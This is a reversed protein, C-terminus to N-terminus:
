IFQSVYSGRSKKLFDPIQYKAVLSLYEAILSLYEAVLILCEGSLIL